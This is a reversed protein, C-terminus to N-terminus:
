TRAEDRARFGPLVSTVVAIGLVSAACSAGVAFPVGYADSLAGIHLRGLPGAGIALVLTGMARDRMEDSSSILVIASQLVGFAAHGLGSLVLLFVSMPFVTSASFAVLLASQLMSGGAFVWGSRGFRRLYSVALIGLFSGVGNAAGLIGLGVPGQHLVDRAFVPLLSMYPFLLANMLVTVLLVGVIRQNGRIYSLGKVLNRWPSADGSPRSQPRDSLRALVLFGAALVGIMALFCGVVGLMRILVGGTVPGVIRTINMAFNEVMMGDVTRSKGVLDPLIARRAPWDLAWGVGPLFEVAAVHWFVLRGAWLLAVLAGLAALYLAQTGLIIARRSFRGAILGSFFGFILLPMSRYFGALAVQWPSNTMELVLWGVGVMEMSTAQWWLANGILLRRYDPVALPSLTGQFYSRRAEQM